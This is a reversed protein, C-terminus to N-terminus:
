NSIALMKIMGHVSLNSSVIQIYFPKYFVRRYASLATNIKQSCQFGTVWEGVEGVVAFIEM